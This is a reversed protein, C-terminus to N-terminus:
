ERPIALDAAGAAILLPSGVIQVHASLWYRGDPLSDGLIQRADTHPAAREASEGSRLSLIQIEKTCAVTRSQDWALRTRAEDRYARILVPCGGGFRIETASGTRNRMRVITRLQVPFSEMILTEATYEIQGHIVASSSPPGDPEVSSMCAAALAALPLPLLSRIRRTM